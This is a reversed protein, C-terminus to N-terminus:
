VCVEIILWVSRPRRDDVVLGTSGGASASKADDVVAASLVCVSTPKGGDICSNLGGAQKELNNTLASVARYASV